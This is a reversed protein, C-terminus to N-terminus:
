VADHTFISARDRLAISADSDDILGARANVLACPLGPAPRGWPGGAFFFAPPLYWLNLRSM